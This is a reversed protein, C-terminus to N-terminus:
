LERSSSTASHDVDLGISVQEAIMRCPLKSADLHLSDEKSDGHDCKTRGHGRETLRSRYRRSACLINLSKASSFAVTQTLGSCTEFLTAILNRSFTPLREVGSASTHPSTPAHASALRPRYRHLACLINLSKARSFAVTQTLGSCTEFRTAVPNRSFTPLREVGSASAHTSARVVGPLRARSAM